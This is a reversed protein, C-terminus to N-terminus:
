KLVEAAKKYKEEQGKWFDELDKGTKFFPVAYAMEALKAKFEEDNVIKEIIKNFEDVISKPTNPPFFFTNTMPFILDPYGLEVASPVDPIFPD